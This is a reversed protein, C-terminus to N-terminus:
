NDWKNWNRITTDVANVLGGLLSMVVMWDAFPLKNFYCLAFVLIINVMANNAWSRLFKYVRM